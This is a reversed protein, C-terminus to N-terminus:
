QSGDNQRYYMWRTAGSQRPGVYLRNETGQFYFNNGENREGVEDFPDLIVGVYYTGPSLAPTTRSLTSLDFASGPPLGASITVLPCMFQQRQQFPLSPCISFEVAFSSATAQSGVNRVVGTFNLTTGGGPDVEGPSFQFGELSLEPRDAVVQARCEAESENNTEIWEAVQNGADVRIEVRYFGEPITQYAPRPFFSGLDASGGEAIPNTMLISDCLSVQQGTNPNVLWFETWFPGTTACDGANFVSGSISFPQGPAFETPSVANLRAQLDPQPPLQASNRIVITKTNTKTIGHNTVTAHLTVYEDQTVRGATLQGSSNVTAFAEGSTIAWEADGNMTTTDSLHVIASYQVGAAGEEVTDPGDIEVRTMQKIVIRFSPSYDSIAGAPADKSRSRVGYEGVETWTHSQNRSGFTSASADGWDFAFTLVDGDHDTGGTSFLVPSNVFAETPGSPTNPPDPIYNKLLRIYEVGGMDLFYRVVEYTVGYNTIGDKYLEAYPNLVIGVGTMTDTTRYIASQYSLFTGKSANCPWDVSPYWVYDGRPCTFRERWDCMSFVMSSSDIITIDPIAYSRSYLASVGPGGTDISGGISITANGSSITGTPGYEVLKSTWDNRQYTLYRDQVYFGVHGTSGLSPFSQVYDVIQHHYLTELLYWDKDPWGDQIKFGNATLTMNARHKNNYWGQYSWVWSEIANWAGADQKAVDGLPVLQAPDPPNAAWEQASLLLSELTKQRTAEDLRVSRRDDIPTLASNDGAVAFKQVSCTQLFFYGRRIVGNTLQQVAFFEPRSADPAESSAIGLLAAAERDGGRFILAEGSAFRQRLSDGAEANEPTASSTSISQVLSLSLASEEARTVVEGMVCILAAVVSFVGANRM